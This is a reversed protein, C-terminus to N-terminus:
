VRNSGEGRSRYKIDLGVIQFDEDLNGNEVQHTLEYASSNLFVRAKRFKDRGVLRDKGLKFSGNLPKDEDKNFLVFEKTKWDEIDSKYMLKNKYNGRVRYYIDSCIVSKRAGVSGLAMPRTRIYSNMAKNDKNQRIGYKYIKGDYAGLIVDDRSLSSRHLGIYSMEYDLIAWSGLNFYYCLVANNESSGELACTWLMAERDLDLCGVMNGYNNPSVTLYASKIYPSSISEPFTMGNSVFFGEKSAYYLNSKYSVISSNSVCGHGTSSRINEFNTPDTGSLVNVSDETFFTLYLPLKSLATIKDDITLEFTSSGTWTNFDSLKSSQLTNENDKMGAAFMHSAYEAIYRVYDPSNSLYSSNIGDYSIIKGPSGNQFYAKNAYVVFSFNNTIPSYGPPQLRENTFLNLINTKFLKFNRGGSDEIRIRHAGKTLNSATGSFVGRLAASAVTSTGDVYITITPAAHKLIVLTIADGEFPAIYDADWTSSNSAATITDGVKAGEGYTDANIIPEINQSSFTAYSSDSFDRRLWGRGPSSLYVYKLGQKLYIADGFCVLNRRTSDDERIMSFIGTCKDTVPPDLYKVYGHAKVLVFRDDQRLFSINRLDAFANAMILRPNTSDDIGGTFDILRETRAQLM